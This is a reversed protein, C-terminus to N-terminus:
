VWLKKLYLCVSLRTSTMPMQFPLLIMSSWHQELIRRHPNYKPPKPEDYMQHKMKMTGWSSARIALWKISLWSSTCPMGAWTACTLLKPSPFYLKRKRRKGGWDPGTSSHFDKCLCIIQEPDASPAQSPCICCSSDPLTTAFLMESPLTLTLLPESSHDAPQHACYQTVAPWISCCWLQAPSLVLSLSCVVYM